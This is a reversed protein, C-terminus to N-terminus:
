RGYGEGNCLEDYSNYEQSFRRKWPGEYKVYNDFPIRPKRPQNWLDNFIAQDYNEQAIQIPSHDFQGHEASSVSVESHILKGGALQTRYSLDAHSHNSYEFRCDLGGIEIFYSTSMLPQLSLRWEPNIYQAGYVSPYTGARWYFEPFEYGSFDKGEMYRCNLIDERNCQRIYQIIARDLTGSLLIGDDVTHFVLWGKAEFCAKQLCVSVRDYSKIWRVNSYKQCIENDCFPGIFIIEYRYWTCSEGVSAVFRDWNQTRISPIIVSVDINKM